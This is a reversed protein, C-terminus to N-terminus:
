PNPVTIKRLVLEQNTTDFDVKVLNSFIIQESDIMNIFPTILDHEITRLLERAGYQINYGVEILHKKTEPSVTFLFGHQNTALHQQLKDIEIDFIKSLDERSLERYFVMKDVRNRFEVLFFDNYTKQQIRKKEIADIKEKIFSFNKNTQKEIEKLGLNSTFGIICKSFNVTSNDGLKLIGKDLIGLWLKHFDVHAKEIEDVLIISLQCNESAVANIKGQNLYPITERHGLYGPPAGVLKAVEHSNQFEACDIKIMSRPDDHLVEALAEFTKTKGSGSPGILMMSVPKEAVSFGYFHLLYADTLTQIAEQQSVVLSALKEKFESHIKGRKNPDLVANGPM